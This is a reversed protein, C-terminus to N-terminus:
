DLKIADPKPKEIFKKFCFMGAMWFIALFITTTWMRISEHDSYYIIGNILAPMWRPPDSSWNPIIVSYYLLFLISFFVFVASGLAPLMYMLQRDFSIGLTKETKGWERTVTNYGCYLCITAHENEMEETCNPCRPVLEVTKVGYPNEDRELDDAAKAPAAEANPKAKGDKSKADKGPKAKKDTPAAAKAAGPVVFPAKCYPCKIKKGAVDAKPRFKKECEPCTVVLDAM